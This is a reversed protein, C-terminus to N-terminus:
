KDEQTATRLVVENRWKIRAILTHAVWVFIWLGGTLLTLAAHLLHIGCGLGPYINSAPQSNVNVTVSRAVIDDVEERTYMSERLRDRNPEGSSHKGM